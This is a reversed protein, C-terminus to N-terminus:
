NKIAVIFLNEGQLRDNKFIVKDLEKILNFIVKDFSSAHFLVGGYNGVFYGKTKFKIIKFGNIKLIKNLKRADIAEHVETYYEDKNPDIGWSELIKHNKFKLLVFIGGLVIKQPINKKRFLFHKNPESILLVGKNKLIRRVEIIAKKHDPLHHLSSMFVAVDFVSSKLGTSDASTKIFKASHCKKKAISISKGSLDVGYLNHFGKKELLSLFNGTGSGLEIIKIKKNKFHEVFYSAADDLRNTTGLQSLYIKDYVKSFNDEIEEEKELLNM